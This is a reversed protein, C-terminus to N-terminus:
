SGSIWNCIHSMNLPLLFLAPSNVDCDSDDRFARLHELGRRACTDDHGNTDIDDSSEIVRFRTKKRNHICLDNINKRRARTGQVQTIKKRETKKKQYDKWHVFVAILRFFYWSLCPLSERVWRSSILKSHLYVFFFVCNDDHHICLYILSLTMFSKYINNKYCVKKKRLCSAQPSRARANKLKLAKESPCSAPLPSFFYARPSQKCHKVYGVRHLQPAKLLSKLHYKPPYLVTMFVWNRKQPKFRWTQRM